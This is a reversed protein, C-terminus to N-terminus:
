RPSLTETTDRLVTVFQRIERRQRDVLAADAKQIQEHTRFEQVSEAEKGTRKYAVGLRYHAEGLHSNLEIAKKYESIAQEVNGEGFYLIGLQLYAEAFQPDIDVAKELLERVPKLGETDGSVLKRKRLVLAYHYNALANGPQARVFRAMAPEVCPLPRPAAMEMKGLFLYATSDAPRLDSAACLRLAAEEYAGGAYLAAGWASLLRVSRPHAASGRGLVAMAPQIARHLLLETGWAFYNEETPDLRAAREYEHVAGLPDDLVEDLDGLLRHLDAKDEHALLNRALEAARRYNGNGKYALALHHAATQNKTNIQHAAELLPVAERYRESRLYFEGLQHNAEFSGPAQNLAARLKRESEKNERDPRGEKSEDSKLALTEKALTESTRLNTDSGHGGAATWDTVGAITFNPKDEFEMGETNTGLPKLTLEVRKREGASLTLSDDVATQFGPKRVRLTYAGARDVSLLFTGDSKTQTKALISQEKSELDVTAGAVPKRMVNRVTGEISPRGSPQPASSQATATAIFWIVAAGLLVLARGFKRRRSTSLLWMKHSRKVMISESGRRDISWENQLKSMIRCSRPASKARAAFSGVRGRDCLNVPSRLCYRCARCFFDFAIRDDQSLKTM